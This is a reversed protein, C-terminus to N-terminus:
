EVLELLQSQRGSNSSLMLVRWSAKQALFDLVEYEPCIFTPTIVSGASM